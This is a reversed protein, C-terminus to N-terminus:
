QFIEDGAEIVDSRKLGPLKELEHQELLKEGIAYALSYGLWEHYEKSRFVPEEEIGSSMKPRLESWRGALEEQSFYTRWPAKGDYIQEAFHQSHAEFLIYQWNFAIEERSEFFVSHAYEHSVQTKLADRWGDIGSNFEIQIYDESHTYGHVGNLNELVFSNETWGLGLKVNNEKPKVAECTKLANDAIRRAEELENSDPRIAHSMGEVKHQMGARTKIRGT